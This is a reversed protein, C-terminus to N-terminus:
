TIHANFINPEASRHFGYQVQMQWRILLELIIDSVETSSNIKKKLETIYNQLITEHWFKLTLERSNEEIVLIKFYVTIITIM